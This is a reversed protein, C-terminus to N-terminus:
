EIKQLSLGVDDIIMSVFLLDYINSMMISDGEANNFVVENHPLEKLCSYKSLPVDNESLSGKGQYEQSHKRSKLVTRTKKTPLYTKYNLDETLHSAKSIRHEKKIRRKLSYTPTKPKDGINIKKNQEKRKREDKRKKKKEEGKKDDERKNKEKKKKEAKVKKEEKRNREEEERKKKEMVKKEEKMKREEEERKKKKEEEGEEGGGGEKKRKEEM